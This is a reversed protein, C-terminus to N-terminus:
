GQSRSAAARIFEQTWGVIACLYLSLLVTLVRAECISPESPPRSTVKPIDDDLDMVREGYFIHATPAFVAPM